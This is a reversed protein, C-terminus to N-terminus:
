FKLEYQQKKKLYNDVSDKSLWWDIVEDVTSLKSLKTPYNRPKDLYAQVHKKLAATLKPNQAMHYLIEKKKMFPCFQCGVRRQTKYCPNLPLQRIKLFEWVHHEKWELIPYLDITDTGQICRFENNEMNDIDLSTKDTKKRAKKELTTYKSRKISEDRRVGTLVVNGKGTREKFIECCWRTKQTPLGKKEILKIFSYPPCEITVDPYHSRIFRVNDAPDNTTANYIARFKVGAMKALELIAQSDKGGSFALYYGNPNLMLALKEARRLLQISNNILDKM